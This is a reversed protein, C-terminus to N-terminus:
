FHGDDFIQASQGGFSRHIQKHRYSVSSHIEQLAVPITKKGANGEHDHILKRKQAAAYARWLTQHPSYVRFWFRM